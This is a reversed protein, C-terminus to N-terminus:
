AYSDRGGASLSRLNLAQLCSVEVRVIARHVLQVLGGFMVKCDQATTKSQAHPQPNGQAQSLDPAAIAAEHVVFCLPVASVEDRRAPDYLHAVPPAVQTYAAM